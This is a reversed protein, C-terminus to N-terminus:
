RLRLLALAVGANVSIETLFKDYDKLKLSLYTIYEEIESKCLYRRNEYYYDILQFRMNEYEPNYILEHAEDEKSLYPRCGKLIISLVDMTKKYGDIKAHIDDMSSESLEIILSDREEFLKVAKKRLRFGRLRM